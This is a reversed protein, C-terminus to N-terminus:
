SAAKIAKTTATKTAPEYGSLTGTIDVTITQGADESTLTYTKTTAGEILTDGRYWAYTWTEGTPSWTGHSATLTHGQTTTGSLTVKATTLKGLIPVGDSTVYTTRYGSAKAKIRVTLTKGKDSSTTTRTSGTAGSIAVGNRYWQYTYTVTGPAWSGKEATLKTGVVSTGTPSISASASPYLQCAYDNDLDGNLYQVMWISGGPTLPSGDCDAAAGSASGGALWSPHGALSSTASTTGAIQGWQLSTSYFGATIGQSQLYDMMGRISASNASTDTQWTNTTEVDLWWTTPLTSFEQHVTYLDAEAMSYGYVYACASGAKHDCTGKPNEVDIVASGHLGETENSSPWWTAALAPDGTNLYVSDVPEAATGSLDLADTYESQFCSNLSSANGGTVGVVAFPIGSPYTVHGTGGVSSCQPYSVDIGVNNPLTSTEQVFGRVQAASYLSTQSPTPQASASAPAAVGMIGLGVIAAIGVLGRTRGLSVFGTHTVTENSGLGDPFDNIPPNRSV